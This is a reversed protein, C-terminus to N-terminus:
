KKALTKELKEDSLANLFKVISEVEETKFEKGLNLAGMTKVAEELTAAKGDHFYPATLAINRLQAVKFMYKDTEVKTLDYKGKDTENAYPKVLGMKQLMNGGFLPGTHCTICGSEVFLKLGKKEAGTLATKDGAIYKDYRSKSILTREFAAIAKAINDYTIKEKATPYAKDFLATYEAIASIAKVAAKEDKIAMEAPNLVPGKAQEVLDKARMDWFQAIQFGANLVTPSNRTGIKGEVSGKSTIQNDVGALKEVDHCTACSQNNNLSLAKEHYLKKGLSVLDPTDNESGPMKGPLAGFLTKAKNFLETEQMPNLGSEKADSDTKKGCSAILAFSIAILLLYKKM